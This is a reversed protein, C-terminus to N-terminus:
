KYNCKSILFFLSELYAKWVLFVEACHFSFYHSNSRSPIQCLTSTDSVFTFHFPFFLQIYFHLAWPWVSSFPRWLRMLPTRPCWVCPGQWPDGEELSAGCASVPNSVPFQFTFPTLVESCSCLIYLEFAWSLSLELTMLPWSLFARGTVEKERLGACALSGRIAM